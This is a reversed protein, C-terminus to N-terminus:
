TTERLTNLGGFRDEPRLVVTHDMWWTADTIGGAADSPDTPDVGLEHKGDYFRLRTRNQSTARPTCATNKWLTPTGDRRHRVSVISIWVEDGPVMGAITRLAREYPLKVVTMYESPPAVPLAVLAGTAEQRVNEFGAEHLDAVGIEGSRLARVIQVDVEASKLAKVKEEVAGELKRVDATWKGLARRHGVSFGVGLGVVLCLFAISLTVPDNEAPTIGPVERLLTAAGQVGM